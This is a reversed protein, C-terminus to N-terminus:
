ENTSVEKKPPTDEKKEIFLLYLLVPTILMMHFIYRVLAVPGLLLTAYYMLCLLAPTALGRRKEYWMILLYGILFWFYFAPKCLTSLIPIKKYQNKGFIGETLKKWAPFLCKKEVEEGMGIEKHGLLMFNGYIMAHYEDDLYWYGMTLLATADLYQAPHKLGLKGWLKFFNKQNNRILENDASGKIGDAIVKYYGNLSREPIYQYIETITEESLSGKCETVVYAMQMLPLSLKETVNNSEPAKAVRILVNNVGMYFLVSGLIVIITRIRAGKMNWIMFPTAALLAYIANNRFLLMVGGTLVLLIMQLASFKFEKLVGDVLLVTFAVFFVAFLVDKTTTIAFIANVPFLAYTALISIRVWRPAHNRYLVYVAYGLVFAMILMQFLSYFAMGVAASEMAVGKNYFFGMLLTHALPHWVSHKGTIVDQLQYVGDYQLLVPYYALFMPVFCLFIIGVYFLYITVSKHKRDKSQERIVGQSFQERLSPLFVLITLFVLFPFASFGIGKMLIQMTGRFDRASRLTDHEIGGLIYFFGYLLGGMLAFIYQRKSITSGKLKKRILLYSCVTGTVACLVIKWWENSFSNLQKDHICLAVVAILVLVPYLLLCMRKRNM